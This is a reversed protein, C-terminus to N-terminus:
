KKKKHKKEKLAKKAEIKGIRKEEKKKIKLEKERKIEKERLKKEKIKEQKKREVEKKKKTKKAEKKLKKKAKRERYGAFLSKKEKEKTLTEALQMSVKDVGISGWKETTGHDLTQRLNLVEDIDDKVRIITGPVKSASKGVVMDSPMGELEFQLEAVANELSKKTAEEIDRQIEEDTYLRPKEKEEGVYSPRNGIIWIIVNAFANGMLTLFGIVYFGFVFSVLPYYFNDLYNTIFLFIAIASFFTSVAVLAYGKKTQRIMLNIGILVLIIGTAISVITYLIQSPESEYQIQFLMVFATGLIILGIGIVFFASGVYYASVGRSSLKTSSSDEQPLSDKHM